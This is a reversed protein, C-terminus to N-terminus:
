KYVNFNDWGKKVWNDINKEDGAFQNKTALARYSAIAKDVEIPDGGQKTFAIKATKYDEFLESIRM